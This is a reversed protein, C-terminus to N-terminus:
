EEKRWNDNRFKEMQNQIDELKLPRIKIRYAKPLLANIEDLSTNYDM